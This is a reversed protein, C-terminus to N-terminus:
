KNTNLQLSKEIDHVYTRFTSDTDMLDRVTKCSHLVTAHTKGGLSAGIETLSYETYQRGLYMAIQRAQSIERKRSSSMFLDSTLGFYRCVEKNITEM